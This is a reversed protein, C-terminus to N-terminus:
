RNKFIANSLIRVCISNKEPFIELVEVCKNVDKVGLLTHLDCGM